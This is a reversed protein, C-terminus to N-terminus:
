NAQGNKKNLPLVQHLYLEGYPTLALLSKVAVFSHADNPNARKIHLSYGDYTEFLM